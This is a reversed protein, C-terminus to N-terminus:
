AVSKVRTNKNREIGDDAQLGAHTGKDFQTGLFVREYRIRADLRRNEALDIGLRAVFQRHPAAM